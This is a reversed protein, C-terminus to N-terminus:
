VLSTKRNTVAIIDNTTVAITTYITHLCEFNFDNTVLIAKCCIPSAFTIDLCSYMEISHAQLSCHHVIAVNPKTIKPM